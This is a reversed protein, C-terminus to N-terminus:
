AVGGSELPFALLYTGLLRYPVIKYPFSARVAYIM